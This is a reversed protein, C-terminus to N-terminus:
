WRPCTVNQMSKPSFPSVRPPNDLTGSVESWMDPGVKARWVERAPDFTWGNRSVRTNTMIGLYCYNDKCTWTM